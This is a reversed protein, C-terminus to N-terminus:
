SEKRSLARHLRTTPTAALGAIRLELWRWSRERLIGSEIDIGRDALDLEIDAWHVLVHTWPHDTPGTLQKPETHM